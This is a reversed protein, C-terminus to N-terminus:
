KKPKKTTKMAVPKFLKTNKGKARPPEEKFYWSPLQAMVLNRHTWKTKKRRNGRNGGGGGGFPAGFAGGFPIPMYPTVPRPTIPTTPALTPTTPTIPPTIKYTMPTIAPTTPITPKTTVPSVSSIKPSYPTSTYSMPSVMSSPSPRMSSIGATNASMQVSYASIKPPTVYDESGTRTIRGAIKAPEFGILRQEVIPVRTGLFHSKGIGGVKTYYQRGTVEFVSNTPINAEYEAKIRPIYAATGGTEGSRAQMYTDIGGYDKTARLVEPVGELGEVTTSYITPSKFPSDFGITRPIQGGTKTFYGEAVPAASIANLESSGTGTMKFAEGVKVGKGLTSREHATWLVTQGPEQTPLRAFPRGGKGPIYPVENPVNRVFPKELSLEVHTASMRSPAPELTGKEFSRVLDMKSPNGIPFGQKTDYGIDEISVYKTGRTRVIGSTRTAGFRLTEGLVFMGAVNGALRGPNTTAQEYLGQGQIALGAVTLGPINNANQLLVEGGLLAQGGMSTILGPVEVVGTAFDGVVGMPKLLGSIPTVITNSYGESLSILSKSTNYTILNNPNVNNVMSGALNRYQNEAKSIRGMQTDITNDILAKERDLNTKQTTLLNFQTENTPNKNYEIVDLNFKSVDKNYQDVIPATDEYTRKVLDDYRTKAEVTQVGKLVNSVIPALPAGWTYINGALLADLPTYTSPEAAPQVPQVQQVQTQQVPQTQVTSQQVPQTQQQQPSVVQVVESINSQVVQVDSIFLGTIPDWWNGM